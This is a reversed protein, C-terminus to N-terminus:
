SVAMCANMFNMWFDGETRYFGCYLALSKLNVILCLRSRSCWTPNSFLLAVLDVICNCMRIRMYGM